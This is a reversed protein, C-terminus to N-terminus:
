YEVRIANRRDTSKTHRYFCKDYTDAPVFHKLEDAVKQWKTTQGSTPSYVNICHTNSTLKGHYNDRLKNGLGEELAKLRKTLDRVQVFADVFGAVEDPKTPAKADKKILSELMYELATVEKNLYDFM